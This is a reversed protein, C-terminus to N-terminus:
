KLTEKRRPLTPLLDLRLQHLAIIFPVIDVPLAGGFRRRWNSLMMMLRGRPSRRYRRIRVKSTAMRERRQYAARGKASHCYKHNARRRVARGVDTQSYAQQYILCETRKTVYRQRATQLRAARNQWYAARSAEAAVRAACTVCRKRPRGVLPHLLPAGCECQQPLTM